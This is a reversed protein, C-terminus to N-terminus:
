QKTSTKPQPQPSKAPILGESPLLMNISDEAIKLADRLSVTAIVADIAKKFAADYLGRDYMQLSQASGIQDAFPGYIIDRKQEEILDRRSTPHHTKQFYTQLNDKSSLFALFDWSEQPHKTTRAVTEVYYNAYSTRKESSTAPDVIQPVTSVRIDKPDLTRVGKEKLDQIESKIQEYLYSYGFIMAVKGKAFTEMEKVSSNNAALYNNWSYNKNAPLAFSTYLDLAQTSPNALAGSATTTQQSAFTARSYNANYFQTGFQLMLLYLIDTARAINDSRGMAIGAMQFQEFSSDKKSLKFVDNKLEEWTSAPRGRSPIADELAARNYYLALTDITLPIGYVKMKGDSSDTYILDRSAVGAFTKDFQEPSFRELPAPTIKKLNRLFWSNPVSFIDPGQGEALENLLLNEYQVPDTFKRYRISVNPHNNQYKQILPFMVDEDDFLKYYVLEIKGGGANKPTEKKVCGSFLGMGFVIVLFLSLLKQTNMIM